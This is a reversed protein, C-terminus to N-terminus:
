APVVIGVDVITTLLDTFRQDDLLRFARDVATPTLEGAVPHVSVRVRTHSAERAADALASPLDDLALGSPVLVLTLLGRDEHHCQYWPVGALDFARRTLSGVPGDSRVLVITHGM